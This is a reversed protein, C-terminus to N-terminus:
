EIVAVKVVTIVVVMEVIVAYTGTLLDNATGQSIKM